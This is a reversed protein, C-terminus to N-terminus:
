LKNPLDQSWVPFHLWGYAAIRPKLSAGICVMQHDYRAVVMELFYLRHNEGKLIYIEAYQDKFNTTMLNLATLKFNSM